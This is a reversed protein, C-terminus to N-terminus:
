QRAALSGGKSPAGMREEGGGNVGGGRKTIMNVHGDSGNPVGEVEKKAAKASSSRLTKSFAWEEPLPSKRKRSSFV